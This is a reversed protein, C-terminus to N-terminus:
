DKELLRSVSIKYWNPLRSLIRLETYGQRRLEALLDAYEEPRAPSTEYRLYEWAAVSHQGVHSYCVCVVGWKEIYPFVALIGGDREKRFCVTNM